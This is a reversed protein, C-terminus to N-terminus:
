NMNFNQQNKYNKPIFIPSNQFNLIPSHLHQQPQQPQPYYNNYNNNMYQQATPSSHLSRSLNKNNNIPSNLMLNNFNNIMMNGTLQNGRIPSAFGMNINRGVNESKNSIDSHNSCGSLNLALNSSQLGLNLHMSNNVIAKWKAILKKDGLKDLNKMIMNIFKTKSQGTSIKLAKQVVYNGYSNKMLDIVRTHQSIEDIFKCVTNEDSRELCKEVVNSSYKQMSLNYFKNYFQEIIPLCFDISWNEMAIQIVYNGYPNQILSTANEVIKDQIRKLTEIHKGHVIIKKTVCLGNSNNALTIFNSIITDYVDRLLDEDYCIIM